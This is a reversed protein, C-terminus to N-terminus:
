ITSDYFIACNKGRNKAKYMASDANKMVEQASIGGKPIIAVGLSAGVYSINGDIELPENISKIIRDILHLLDKKYLEYEKEQAHLLLVFEDGGVRGVEDCIRISEKLRKAVIQLVIDGHDHGLSDNIIKFGDLDLFILASNTQNKISERIEKELKLSISRRNAVGTLTDFYALQTIEEEKIKRDTIDKDIGRYGMFKGNMSFFATGSTLLVVRQGNKHLNINEINIISTHNKFLSFFMKGMKVKEHEEMLDMPTKGLIEKARYGLIKEVQDNSYTYFGDKDVEWVWDKTNEVLHKFREDSIKLLENKKYEYFKLIYFLIITVMFISLLTIYTVHKFPAIHLSYPQKIVLGWSSNEIPTYASFVKNKNYDYEIAVGSLGELARKMPVALQESSLPVSKPKSESSFAIFDIMGASKKAVLYEFKIKDITKFNQFAIKIQQLTAEQPIYSADGFPHEKEYITMSSIIKSLTIVKELMFDKKESSAQEFLYMSGMLLVIIIPMVIKIFLFVLNRESSQM